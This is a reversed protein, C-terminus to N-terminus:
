PTELATIRTTLAEIIAQQEKVAEILPAVLRDYRVTKIGDENTLVIEPFQAEVEQAIVGLQTGQDATCMQEEIFEFSVGRIACVKELAGTVQQVNTKLSADSTSGGATTVLYYSGGVQQYFGGSSAGVIIQTGAGGASRIFQSTNGFYMIGSGALTFNGSGDVRVRETTNTGFVLPSAGTTYIEFANANATDNVIQMSYLNGSIGASASYTWRIGLLPNTAGGPGIGFACNSTNSNTATGIYHGVNLLANPTATGLGVGVKGFSDIAIDTRITDGGFLSLISNSGAYVGGRVTGAATGDSTWIWGTGQRINHNYSSTVLNVANPATFKASDWTPAGTSLKAPTVAADKIDVTDVTGDQLNAGSVLGLALTNGIMGM